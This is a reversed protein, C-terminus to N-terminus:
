IIGRQCQGHLFFDYAIIHIGVSFVERDDGAGILAAFGNEQAADSQRLQHHLAAHEDGGLREAGIDAGSQERVVFSFFVAVM